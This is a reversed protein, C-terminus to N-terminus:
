SYLEYTCHFMIYSLIIYYLLVLMYNHLVVKLNFDQWFSLYSEKFIVSQKIVSTRLSFGYQYHDTCGNIPM